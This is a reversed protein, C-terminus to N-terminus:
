GIRSAGSGDHLDLYAGEVLDEESIGLATMLERAVAAGDAETEDDALVVEIELFDGLREVRDLHIRTRGIVWVWRKKVVEGVVGLAEALLEGLGEPDRTEVRCYHSTTPGADDPRRYFILEATGDGFDRIKLRGDRIGYFTDRQYLVEPEGAGRERALERVRRDLAELDEVWAKIEVNRPM